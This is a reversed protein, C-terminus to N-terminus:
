GTLPKLQACILCLGWDCSPKLFCGKYFKDESHESGYSSSKVIKPCMSHLYPSSVLTIHPCCVPFNEGLSPHFGRPKPSKCTSQVFVLSSSTPHVGSSAPLLTPSGIQRGLRESGHGQALRFESM